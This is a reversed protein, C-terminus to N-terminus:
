FASSWRFCRPGPAKAPLLLNLTVLSVVAGTSGLAAYRRSRKVRQSRSSWKGADAAVDVSINDTTTM